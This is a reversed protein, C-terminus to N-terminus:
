AAAAPPGSSDETEARVSPESSPSSPPIGASDKGETPEVTLERFATSLIEWTPAQLDDVESRADFLRQKHDKVSRTGLWVECRYYEVIWATDAAAKLRSETATDLLQRDSMTQLGERFFDLDDSVSADVEQLYRDLEDHVRKAETDEPDLMFRESMEDAWGDRLGQLYDDDKWRDEEAIQAEALPTIRVQEALTLMEVLLDRDSQILGDVLAQYDDSEKDYKLALLRSRAAGAKRAVQSHEVPNLKQIWVVVPDDTGDDLTVERGRVYLDSLLRQKPM